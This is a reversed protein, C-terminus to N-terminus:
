QEGGKRSGTNEDDNDLEARMHFADFGPTSQLYNFKGCYDLLNSTPPAVARAAKISPVNQTPSVQASALRLLPAQTVM